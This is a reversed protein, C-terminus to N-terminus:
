YNLKHSVSGYAFGLLVVNYRIEERNEQDLAWKERYECSMYTSIERWRVM